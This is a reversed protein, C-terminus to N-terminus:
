PGTQFNKYVSVKLLNKEKNTSYFKVYFHAYKRLFQWVANHM